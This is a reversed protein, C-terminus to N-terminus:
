RSRERERGRVVLAHNQTIWCDFPDIFWKKNVPFALPVNNSSAPSPYSNM